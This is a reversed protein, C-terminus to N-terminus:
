AGIIVPTGLLKRRKVLAEWAAGGYTNGAMGASSTGEQGDM